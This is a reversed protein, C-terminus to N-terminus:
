QRRFQATGSGPRPGLQLPERKRDFQEFHFGRVSSAPSRCHSVAVVDQRLVPSDARAQRLESPVVGIQEIRRNGRARRPRRTVDDVMEGSQGLIEDGAAEVSVPRLTHVAPWTARKSPTGSSSISALHSAAAARRSETGGIPRTGAAAIAKPSATTWSASTRPAPRAPFAPAPMPSRERLSPRPRGNAAPARAPLPVSAASRPSRAVPSGGRGRRCGPQRAGHRDTRATGRGRRVACDRAPGRGRTPRRCGGTGRHRSGSGKGQASSSM